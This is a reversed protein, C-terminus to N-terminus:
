VQVTWEATVVQYDTQAHAVDYTPRVVAYKPAVKALKTLALRLEGLNPNKAYLYPPVPNVTATLKVDL